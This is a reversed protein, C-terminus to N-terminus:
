VCCRVNLVQRHRKYLGGAAHDRPFLVCTLKDMTGRERALWEFSCRSPVPTVALDAYDGLIRIPAYIPGMCNSTGHRHSLLVAHPKRYISVGRSLVPCLMKVTITSCKTSPSSQRSLTHRRVHAHSHPPHPCSTPSPPHHMDHYTIHIPSQLHLHHPPPTNTATYM